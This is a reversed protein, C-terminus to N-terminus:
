ARDRRRTAGDAADPPEEVEDLGLRPGGAIDASSALESTPRADARSLLDIRDLLAEHRAITRPSSAKVMLFVVGYVVLGLLAAGAGAGVSRLDGTIGMALAMAIIGSAGLVFAFLRAMQHASDPGQIRVLDGDDRPEVTVHYGSTSGAESSWERRRGIQGASGSVNFESRLADVIAEWDTDSVRAPLLRTRAARVPVGHWLDHADAEAEGEAVVAAIQEPDLGAERGIAQLEALTLGDPPPAHAHQRAAARAFVRQAEDETFRRDM